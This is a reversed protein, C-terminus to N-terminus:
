SESVPLHIYFTSGQNPQSEVRIIGRHAEVINKVISLGLGTGHIYRTSESKIRYFRTFIRDLDEKAMGLGTDSVCIVVYGSEKEALIVIRGGGPSYKVANGILNSFVEEMNQRNAVVPLMDSSLELQISCGAKLACPRHFAVQDSLLDAINLKEKEQAILGSEIRALDLLESAMDSLNQIKGSARQLIERQKETVDGALGDLVVKLQMLISNMPSRIEHSVLSVFDSKMKDMKKMATIDHLVMIAGINLGIRNRFPTCRAVISRNDTEREDLEEVIEQYQDSPMALTRDLMELLPKSTVVSEVDLGIASKGCHGIMGLFAPNALVIRKRNDTTMVGDSLRNVMVRLRSSADAIDQLARTYKIAKSVVLRLQEPNFPKPIFDFAGKKMAEVSHELTAYGTIVIVVTDPHVSHIKALVEFGSLGPLMLDLLVIDFHAAEIKGLGENGDSAVSVDFGKDALIARCAERIRKEDDVVLIRPVYQNEVSLCNNMIKVNGNM